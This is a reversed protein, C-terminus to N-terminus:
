RRRAARRASAESPRTGVMPAKWSPWRANIRWARTLPVGLHTAVRSLANEALIAPHAGPSTVIGALQVDLELM